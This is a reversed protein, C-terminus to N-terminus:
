TKVERGAVQAPQKVDGADSEATQDVVPPNQSGDLQHAIPVLGNLLYGVFHSEVGRVIEVPDEFLDGAGGGAHVQLPVIVRFGVRGM